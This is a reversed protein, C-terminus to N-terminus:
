AGTAYYKRVTVKKGYIMRYSSRKLKYTVVVFIKKLNKNKPILNLNWAMTRSNSMGAYNAKRKNIIVSNKEVRWRKPAKFLVELRSNKSIYMTASVSPSSAEAGSAEFLTVASAIIMVVFLIKVVFHNIRLICM